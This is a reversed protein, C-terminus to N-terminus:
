SIERLFRLDIRDGHMKCLMGSRSREDIAPFRNLEALSIDQHTDISNRGASPFLVATPQIGTKRDPKNMAKESRAVRISCGSNPDGRVQIEM